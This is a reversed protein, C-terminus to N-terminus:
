PVMDNNILINVENYADFLGGLELLEVKALWNINSGIAGKCQVLLYDTCGSGCGTVSMQAGWSTDTEYYTTKVPAGLLKVGYKDNSLIGELKYGANGSNSTERGIVTATYGITRNSALLIGSYMSNCELNILTDDTTQGRLLNQSLQADGSHTGFSGNSFVQQGSQYVWGSTGVIVGSASASLITGDLGGGGGGISDLSNWPTDGDGIKLLNNTGDYGPEGSALTPNQSSWETAIGKRFTILNNIAM